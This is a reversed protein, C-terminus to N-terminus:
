LGQFRRRHEERVGELLQDTVRMQGGCSRGVPHTTASDREWCWPRELCSLRTVSSWLVSHGCAGVSRDQLRPTRTKPPFGRRLGTEAASPKLPPCGLGPGLIHLIFRCCLFYLAYCRPLTRGPTGSQNMQFDTYSVLTVSCLLFFTTCHPFHCGNVGDTLPAGHVLDSTTVCTRVCESSLTKEGEVFM